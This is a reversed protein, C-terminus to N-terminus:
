YYYDADPNLYRIWFSKMLISTYPIPRFFRLRIHMPIGVIFYFKLLLRLFQLQQFKKTATTKPSSTTNIFQSMDDFQALPITSKTVKWEFLYKVTPPTLIPEPIQFFTFHSRNLIRFLSHIYKWYKTLRLFLTKVWKITNKRANQHKVHSYQPNQTKKM